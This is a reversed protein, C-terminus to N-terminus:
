YKVDVDYGCWNYLSFGDVVRQSLEISPDEWM